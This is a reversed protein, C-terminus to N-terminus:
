KIIDNICKLNYDIYKQLRLEMIELIRNKYKSHLQFQKNYSLRM